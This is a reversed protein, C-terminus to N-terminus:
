IELRITSAKSKDGTPKLSFSSHHNQLFLNSSPRWIPLPSGDHDPQCATKWKKWTQPTSVLFHIRQLFLSCTFFSWSPQDFQSAEGGFTNQGPMMFALWPETFTQKGTTTPFYLFPVALRSPGYLTRSAWKLCVDLGPRSPIVTKMKMQFHQMAVTNCNGFKALYISFIQIYIYNNTFTFM